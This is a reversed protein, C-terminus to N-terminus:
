SSAGIMAEAIVDAADPRAISAAARGMSALREPDSILDSVLQSLDGISTESLVVAAGAQALYAANAPQHGSSGFGGPVLISPTGTAMIEAVAGGARAVVLDCVGFFLAMDPEFAIRRWEAVAGSARGAYDPYDREGTLHIVQVPKGEWGGILAATAENLVSAGLSGGFVGVVPITAALDYRALGAPRSSDRDFESISRRVPNGVWEGRPLGDTHPFSTFVRASWRSAVRNALGAGANQEAVMMPVGLRRAALATPITVYGGMGLAAICSRAGMVEVIRDRARRVVRPLGLNETTLSRKLGRLEVELFPFGADPYVRSEIRSGGVFLVDDRSIGRAVLAEGVALGPFVHGGTGAAAIVFTM